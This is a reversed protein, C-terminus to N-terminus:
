TDDDGNEGVVVVTIALLLDLRLDAVSGIEVPEALLLVSAARQDEGAEVQPFVEAAFQVNLGQAMGKRFDALNQGVSELALGFAARQVRVEGVDSVNRLISMEVQVLLPHGPLVALELAADLQEGAFGVDPGRAVFHAHLTRVLVAGPAKHACDGFANEAV